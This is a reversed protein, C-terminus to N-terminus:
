RSTHTTRTKRVGIDDMTDEEDYERLLDEVYPYREIDEDGTNKILFIHVLKEGPRTSLPQSPRAMYACADFTHKPAAITAECRFLQLAFNTSAFGLWDLDFM